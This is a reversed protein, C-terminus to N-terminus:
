AFELEWDKKTSEPQKTDKHTLVLRTEKTLDMAAAYLYERNWHVNRLRIQNTTGPVLEVEWDKKTSEPQKPDKHVLVRRTEKTADIAASYMYARNWHANRLRIQNTTGPVLEVEWDKKTSTPEKPDKHVLVHRTDKNHDIAAAYVYEQNWHVNRLRITRGALDGVNGAVHAATASLSCGSSSEADLCFSAFDGPSDKYWLGNWQLLGSGSTPSEDAPMINKLWIYCKKTSSQAWTL